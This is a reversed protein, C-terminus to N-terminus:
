LNLIYELVEADIEEDEKKCSESYWEWNDVGGVELETLIIDQRILHKLSSLSISLSDIDKIEVNINESIKLQNEVEQCKEKLTSLAKTNVDISEISAQNLANIEAFELKLAVLRAKFLNEEEQLHSIQNTLSKIAKFEFPETQLFRNEVIAFINNEVDELADIVDQYQECTHRTPTGSNGIQCETCFDSGHVDDNFTPTISIESFQESIKRILKCPKNM